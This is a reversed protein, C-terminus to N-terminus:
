KKIQIAKEQANAEKGLEVSRLEIDSLASGFYIKM